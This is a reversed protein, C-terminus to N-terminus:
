TDYENEYHLNASIVWDEVGDEYKSQLYGPQTRDISKIVRSDNEIVPYLKLQYTTDNIVVPAQELWKGLTDLWEKVRL